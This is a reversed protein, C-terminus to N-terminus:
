NGVEFNMYDTHWYKKTDYERKLTPYKTQFEIDKKTLYLHFDADDKWIEKETYEKQLEHYEKEIEQRIEIYNMKKNDNRNIRKLLRAKLRKYLQYTITSNDFKESKGKKQCNENPCYINNSKPAIFYKRCKSYECRSIVKKASTVLHFITAHCLEELSCFTYSYTRVRNKEGIIPEVTPAKLPEKEIEKYIRTNSDATKKPFSDNVFNKINELKKIYEDIFEICKNKYYLGYGKEEFIEEWQKQLENIGIKLNELRKRDNESINVKNTIEVAEKKLLNINKQLEERYKPLEVLIDTEFSYLDVLLIASWETNLYYLEHELQYLIDLWLPEPLEYDYLLNEIINKEQLKETICEFDKKYNNLCKIIMDYNNLISTLTYGLHGVTLCDELNPLRGKLSISTPFPLIIEEIIGYNIDIDINMKFKYCNNNKFEYNILNKVIDMIGGTKRITESKFFM